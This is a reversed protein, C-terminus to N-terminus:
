QSLRLYDRLAKGNLQPAAARVPVEIISPNGQPPVSLKMPLNSPPRMFTLSHQQDPHNDTDRSAM